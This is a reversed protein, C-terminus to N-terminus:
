SLRLKPRCGYASLGVSSVAFDLPIIPSPFFPRYAAHVTMFLTEPFRYALGMAPGFSFCYLALTGALAAVLHRPNL